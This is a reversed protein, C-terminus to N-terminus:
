RLVVPVSGWRLTQWPERTAYREVVARFARHEDGDMGNPVHLHAPTRSAFARPDAAAAVVGAHRTLHPQEKSTM